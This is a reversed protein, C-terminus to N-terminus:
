NSIKFKDFILCAILFLQPSIFVLVRNLFPITKITLIITGTESLAERVKLKLGKEAKKDSGSYRRIMSLAAYAGTALRRKFVISVENYAYLEIMQLFVDIGKQKDILHKATPNMRGISTSNGIFNNYFVYDICGVRNASLLGDMTMKYDAYYRGELFKLNKEQIFDRLWFKDWIVSRYNNKLLYETGKFIDINEDVNCKGREKGEEYTTNSKAILIELSNHEAIEYLVKCANLEIWDDQDVYMIYKGVAKNVGKNRAGGPLFNSQNKILAIKECKNKYEEIIEVSNDTSCDDVVIIEIDNLTQNILSDLCRSLYDAGNYVPTIISVKTKIM